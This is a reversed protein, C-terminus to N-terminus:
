PHGAPREGGEGEGRYLEALEAVAGEAKQRRAKLEEAFRRRTKLLLYARAERVLASRRDEFRLAVWGTLPAAVLVAVLARRGALEWGTVAAAAWCAPFLVLSPFLRYTARLDPLRGLRGAIWGALRYPVWNLAIGVLAPPLVLALVALTRLTWGAVSPLPYRAAVQEDSLRAVALLRDYDGVAAAAAAVREPHRRRLEEYGEVFAQHLPLDESLRRDRPLTLQSRGFLDAARGILSAEEWSGYNLTVARLAAEIRGTLEGVAAVPESRYRALEPAPDIPEGVAVLARSRFREKADFVLGVPVVRAGLPGLKEEAELLIRAAGTRLPALAPQNHSIGEPFLAVAGGAALVEHCRAFTERNKATGEGVDQRRYVPIIGALALLPRLLPNDWLTSKGLFRPRLPLTGLILLADMLSNTHNAVLVLPRGRPLRGLGVVELRRYFVRLLLRCAAAVAADLWRRV